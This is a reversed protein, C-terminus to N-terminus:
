RGDYKNTDWLSEAYFPQNSNTEYGCRQSKKPPRELGDLINGWTNMVVHNLPSGMGFEAWIQPLVDPTGFQTVSEGWIQPVQNEPMAKVSQVAVQFM